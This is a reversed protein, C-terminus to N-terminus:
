RPGMLPPLLFPLAEKLHLARFLLVKLERAVIVIHEGPVVLARAHAEPDTILLAHRPRRIKLDQPVVIVRRAVLGGDEEAVIAVRDGELVAGSERDMPVRFKTEDTVTVTFIGESKERRRTDDVVTRKVKVGEVTFSDADLATVKGFVLCLNQHKVLRPAPTKAAVVSGVSGLVLGLAVVLAVIMWAKRM